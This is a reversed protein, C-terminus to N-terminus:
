DSCPSDHDYVLNTVGVTMQDFRAVEPDLANEGRGREIVDEGARRAEVKLADITAFVYPPLANIRRFEPM